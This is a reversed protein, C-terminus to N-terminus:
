EWVLGMPINGYVGDHRLHISKRCKPCQVIIIGDGRIVIRSVTYIHNCGYCRFKFIWRQKEPKRLRKGGHSKKGDNYVM